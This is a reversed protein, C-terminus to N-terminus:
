NIARPMHPSDLSFAPVFVDVFGGAEREMRYTGQMIGSPTKLPVGSTYEFSQGPELRPEEGVVGPGNVKQVHGRGDTIHWHRTRLTVTEPGRNEIRITYAWVFHSDDPRSQQDLFKPRVMVRIGKTTREYIPENAAM